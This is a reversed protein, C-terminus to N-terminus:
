WLDDLLGFPHRSQDQFGVGLGVLCKTLQAIHRMIHRVFLREVWQPAKRFAASFLQLPHRRQSPPRMQNEGYKSPKRTWVAFRLASSDIETEIPDTEIETCLLPRSMSYSESSTHSTLKAASRAKLDRGSRSFIDSGWTIKPPESRGQGEPQVSLSVSGM